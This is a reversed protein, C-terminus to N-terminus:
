GAVRLGVLVSFIISLHSLHRTKTKALLSSDSSPNDLNGSQILSNLAVLKPEQIVAIKRYTYRNQINWKLTFSKPDIWGVFYEESTEKQKISDFEPELKM